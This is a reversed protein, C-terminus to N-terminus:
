TFTEAKHPLLRLRTARDSQLRKGAFTLSASGVNSLSNRVRSNKSSNPWPRLSYTLRRSPESTNFNQTAAPGQYRFVREGTYFRSEEAKSCLAPRHGGM